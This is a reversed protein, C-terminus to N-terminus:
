LEPESLSLRRRGGELLRRPAARHGVRVRLPRTPRPRRRRAAGGPRLGPRVLTELASCRTVYCHVDEAQCCIHQMQDAKQDKHKPHPRLSATTSDRQLSLKKEKQNEAATIQIKEEAKHRKVISQHFNEEYGRCGRSHVPHHASNLKFYQIKLYINYVQQVTSWICFRMRNPSRCIERLHLIRQYAPAAHRRATRSLGM